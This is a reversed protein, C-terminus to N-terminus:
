RPGIQLQALDARLRDEVHQRRDLVEPQGRAAGAGVIQAVDGSARGGADGGVLQDVGPREAALQMVRDQIMALEIPQRAFEVDTEVAAAGNRHELVGVVDAKRRDRDPLALRDRGADIEPNQEAADGAMAIEAAIGPQEDLRLLACWHRERQYAAEDILAVAGVALLRPEFIYELAQPQVTEQGFRLLM